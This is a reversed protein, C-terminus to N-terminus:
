VLHEGHGHRGGDERGLEAGLEEIRWGVVILSLAAVSKGGIIKCEALAMSTLVVAKAKGHLKSQDTIKSTGQPECLVHRSGDHLGDALLNPDRRGDEIELGPTVLGTPLMDALDDGAQAQAGDALGIVPAGEHRTGRSGNSRIPALGNHPGDDIVQLDAVDDDRGGRQDFAKGQSAPGQGSALGVAVEDATKIGVGALAKFRQQGGPDLPITMSKVAPDGLHRFAWLQLIQHTDHIPQPDQTRDSQRIVPALSDMSIAIAHHGTLRLDGV